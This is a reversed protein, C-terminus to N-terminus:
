TLDLGTCVPTSPATSRVRQQRAHSKIDVPIEKMAMIAGTERYLITYVKGFGGSGVLTGRQYTVNPVFLLEGSRSADDNESADV